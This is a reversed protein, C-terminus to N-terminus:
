DHPVPRFMMQGINLQSSTQWFATLTRDREAQQESERFDLVAERDFPIRLKLGNETQVIIDSRPDGPDAYHPASVMDLGMAELIAVYSQVHQLREFECREADILTLGITQAETLLKNARIGLEEWREAQLLSDLSTVGELLRRFNEDAWLRTEETDLTKTLLILDDYTRLAQERKCVQEEFATTAQAAVTATRSLTAVGSRLAAEYHRGEFSEIAESLLSAIEAYNEPAFQQLWADPVSARRSIAQEIVTAASRMMRLEDRRQVDQVKEIAKEVQGSHQKLIQASEEIIRGNHDIAQQIRQQQQRAVQHQQLNEAFGRAVEQRIQELSQQALKHLEENQWSLREIDSRMTSLAVETGAIQQIANKQLEILRAREVTATRQAEVIEQQAAEEIERRRLSTVAIQEILLDEVRSQAEDQRRQQEAEWSRSLQQEYAAEFRPVIMQICPM